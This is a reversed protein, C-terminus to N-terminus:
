AAEDNLGANFLDQFCASDKSPSAKELYSKLLKLKKDPLCKELTELVETSGVWGSALSRADFQGLVGSIYAADRQALWILSPVNKRWSKPVLDPQQFLVVEDQMSIKGIQASSDFSRMSSSKKFQWDMKDAEIASVLKLKKEIPLEIHLQRLPSLSNWLQQNKTIDLKLDDQSTHKLALPQLYYPHEHVMKNLPEQTLFYIVYSKFGKSSQLVTRKNELNLNKWLWHAYGDENCWYCDGFLELISDMPYDNLHTENKGDSNTSTPIIKETSPKSSPAAAGISSNQLADILENFKAKFSNISKSHILYSYAFGLLLLAGLGIYFVKALQETVSNAINSLDKPEVPTALKEIVLPKHEFKVVVRNRAVPILKYTRAKVFEPIDNFQSTVTIFIKAIDTEDITTPSINELGDVTTGPLSEYKNYGVTVDARITKDFSSLGKEIRTELISEFELKEVVNAHSIISHAVVVIFLLLKKM